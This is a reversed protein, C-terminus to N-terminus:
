KTTDKETQRETEANLEACMLIIYASLYLWTLFVIVAGLSGYTANYNGFNSVYFGFGLSAAIWLLTALISGPTLWIWRPNPRSPGYRYLAAILLSVVIAAAVWFAIRLLVHIFPSSFPLWDDIRGMASIAVIAVFLAVVAGATLALAGLTRWIYGRTEECDFAINLATQISTAAKAAGWLAIGLALLLALGKTSGATEVMAKLQDGILGAADAPMVDTLAQVHAVVSSPEAVLGYTLVLAALLPVFASFAYFAVGASILSVNDDDGEKWTRRAIEKWGRAPIQAPTDADAGPKATPTAM